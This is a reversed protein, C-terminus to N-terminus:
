YTRYSNNNRYARQWIVNYWYKDQLENLWQLYSDWRLKRVNQIEYPVEPAATISWSLGLNNNIM